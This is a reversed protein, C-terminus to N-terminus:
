SDGFSTLQRTPIFRDITGNLESPGNGTLDVRVGVPGYFGQDVYVQGLIQGTEDAARFAVRRTGFASIADVTGDENKDYELCSFGHRETRKFSADTKGDNNKDIKISELNGFLDYEVTATRDTTYNHDRDIEITTPLGLWYSYGTVKFHPLQKQEEQVESLFTEEAALASTIAADQLHNYDSFDDMFERGLYHRELM